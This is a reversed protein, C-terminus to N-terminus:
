QTLRKSSEMKTSDSINPILLTEMKQEFDLRESDGRDRLNESGKTMKTQQLNSGDFDHEGLDVM